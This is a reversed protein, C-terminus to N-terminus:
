EPLVALQAGGNRAASLWQTQKDAFEAFDRPAGIRYKAVAVKMACAGAAAALLEPFARARRPRGREM